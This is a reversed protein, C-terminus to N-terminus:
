TFQHKTQLLSFQVLKEELDQVVFFAAAFHFLIFLNWKAVPHSFYNQFLM